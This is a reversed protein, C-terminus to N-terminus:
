GSPAPSSRPAWPAARMCSTAASASIIPLAGAEQLAELALRLNFYRRRDQLDGHTLLVQAAHVGHPQLLDIYQQMLHSQGVAAAAQLQPITTPRGAYGLRPWGLGIAGSSVLLVSCGAARARLLEELRRGLRERDIEHANALLARTGLTVVIRRSNALAARGSM